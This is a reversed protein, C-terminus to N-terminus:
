IMLSGTPLFPTLTVESTESAPLNRTSRGNSPLTPIELFIDLKLSFRRSRFITWPNRGSPKPTIM